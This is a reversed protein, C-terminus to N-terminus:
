EVDASRGPAWRVDPCRGPEAESSGGRRGRGPRVVGGLAARALRRSVKLIVVRALTRVGEQRWVRRVARAARLSPRREGRGTGRRGLSTGRLRPGAQGAPGALARHCVPGAEACLDRYLAVAESPMVADVDAAAPVRPRARPSLVARARVIREASISIGLVDAVRRLEAPADHLYADYHTVVRREPSATALARRNYTLWLAWGASGSPQGRRGLSAVVELPARVCLVIRLDPIVERWFPLTLSNRPDKWFWPERGRFREVLAAADRRLRSLRRDSAWGPPMPPPRDWSGGLRALVEDNLRLFRINEWFGEANDPAPAVLEEPPGCYVGSEALLRAVLSTGSRHMGAVCVPM